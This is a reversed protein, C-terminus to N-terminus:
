YHKTKNKLDTNKKRKVNIKQSQAEYNIKIKIPNRLRM